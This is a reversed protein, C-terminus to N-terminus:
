STSRPAWQWKMLDALVISLGITVLTQRLDQGEMRRFIVLQLLVGAWPWPSSGPSRRRSVLLRHQRRGVLRCLRGASLALWAGPQGPADARVRAHLREGCSIDAALTIGDLITHAFKKQNDVLLYAFFIAVVAGTVVM